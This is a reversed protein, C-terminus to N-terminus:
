IDGLELLSEMGGGELKYMYEESAEKEAIKLSNWIKDMDKLMSQKMKINDENYPLSEYYNSFDEVEKCWTLYAKETTSLCLKPYEELYKKYTSLRFDGKIYDDEVRKIREEKNYRNYISKPDSILYVAWMIKSGHKKKVLEDFPSLTKLEPNQKWFDAHHDGKVFPVM